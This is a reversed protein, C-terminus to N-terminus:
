FLLELIYSFDFKDNWPEFGLNQRKYRYNGIETKKDYLLMIDSLRSYSASRASLLLKKIRINKSLMLFIQSGKRQSENPM